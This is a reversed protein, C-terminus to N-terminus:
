NPTASQRALTGRLSAWIRTNQARDLAGSGPRPSECITM